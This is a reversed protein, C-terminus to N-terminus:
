DGWEAYLRYRAYARNALSPFGTNLQASNDSEPMGNGGPWPEEAMTNWSADGAKADVLRGAESESDPMARYTRGYGDAQYHRARRFTYYNWARNNEALIQPDKSRIPALGGALRGLYKADEGGKDLIEPLYANFFHEAYSLWGRAWPAMRYRDQAVTGVAVSWPGAFGPDAYHSFKWFDSDDVFDTDSRKDVAPFLLARSRSRGFNEAPTWPPAASADFAHTREASSLLATKVSMDGIDFVFGLLVLYIPFVTLFEMMVSGRRAARLIGRQPRGRVARRITEVAREM